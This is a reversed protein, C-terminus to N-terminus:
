SEQDVRKKRWRPILAHLLNAMVITLAGAYFGAHLDKHEGFLLAAALIGYVPEFNIALNSTYASLSRLLHIHFGHAFVTCVWALILLWLWDLGHFALLGRYATGPDALHGTLVPQLILVTACAGLMEWAVMTQIDLDSTNVVRRNLVPFIAALFAAGLAVLLGLWRGREFGAVMALGAVILLGLGVELPRIPRKELLPETFATFLSITAMGALCISINSLQIAGFFCTWHLGIIAGIGLLGMLQRRPVFLPRRRVMKVLLAAGIAALLTRWTVLAPAPLSILRGLIATAALLVVLLHLQFLPPM